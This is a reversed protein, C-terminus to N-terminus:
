VMQPMETWNIRNRSRGCHHGLFRPLCIPGTAARAMFELRPLFRSKPFSTQLGSPDGFYPEHLFFQETLLLLSLM